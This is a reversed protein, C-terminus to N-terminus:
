ALGGKLIQVGRRGAPMRQDVATFAHALADVQDDTKDGKGTFKCIEKVLADVSGGSPFTTGPMPVRVRGENWAAKLALSRVFKDGVPQVDVVRLGPHIHRMMQPVAKFGAVAEVFAPAGWHEQVSAIKSVLAPTEVQGRWLDVVDVIQERGSGRAAVVIIVSHDASTKATAAPDVGIALRCGALAMLDAQRYRTPEKFCYGDRPMPRGQYLSAWDYEGVMAKRQELADLPWRDAWLEQGTEDDIAQLNMVEWSVETDERLRGVLDDDHWRAMNVIVRPPTGPDLRTLATSTFWEHVKTRYTESEAEERNKCPDDVILVNVGQGTLPGGVGTAIMGGGQVTRWESASRSGAKLQVGARVAFDRCKRSKSHALSASYSVYAVTEEPHRSIHRAAWHLISETKGHRPPTSSVLFVQEGRDARHFAEALPRLHEPAKYAPTILPVFALLGDVGDEDELMRWMALEERTLAKSLRGM